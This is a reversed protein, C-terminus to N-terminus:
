AQRIELLLPLHDSLFRASKIVTARIQLDTHASWARDLRLFPWVSPFSPESPIPTMREDMHKILKSNPLWENIDGMFLIPNREAEEVKDVLTMLKKVESFREFPSLSLHTGIIRLTGIPTNILADVANRPELRSSTELDHVLGRLIPYKSIILNGYWGQDEKLTLAPLHYPREPGSIRELDQETGGRSLRTEIEQFVAIDVKYKDMLIRIRGLDRRRRM